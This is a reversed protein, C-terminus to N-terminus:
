NLHLKRKIATVDTKITKIDRSNESIKMGMAVMTSSIKDTIDILHGNMKRQEENIKRQEIIFNDLRSNLGDFRKLFPKFWQPPQSGNGSYWKSGNNRNNAM